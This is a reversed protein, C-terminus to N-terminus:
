NEFIGKREHEENLFEMFAQFSIKPQSKITEIYNKKAHENLLESKNIRKIMHEVSIKEIEKQIVKSEKYLAMGIAAMLAYISLIPLSDVYWEGAILLMLLNMAPIIILPISFFRYKSFKKMKPQIANTIIELEHRIFSPLNKFVVPGM